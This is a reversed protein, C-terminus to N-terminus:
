MTKRIPTSNLKGNIMYLLKSSSLICVKHYACFQIRFCEKVNFFKIKFSLVFVSKSVFRLFYVKKVVTSHGVYEAAKFDDELNQM